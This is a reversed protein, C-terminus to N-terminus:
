ACPLEISTIELLDRELLWAVTHNWDGQDDPPHFCVLVNDPLDIGTHRATMTILTQMTSELHEVADSESQPTVWYWSRKDDGYKFRYKLTVENTERDQVIFGRFFASGARESLLHAYEDPLVIFSLLKETGVHWCM